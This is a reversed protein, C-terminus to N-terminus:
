CKKHAQVKKREYVQWPEGVIKARRGSQSKTLHIDGISLRQPSNVTQQIENTTRRMLFVM